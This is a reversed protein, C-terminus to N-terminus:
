AGWSREAQLVEPTIGTMTVSASGGSAGSPGQGGEFHLQGLLPTEGKWRDDWTAGHDHQSQIIALAHWAAAAMHSFQGEPDQDEGGQWALVHRYLASLHLSMPLGRRFNHPEYKSAGVGAVKGLELLADPGLWALQEPKSGKAGGTTSTIRVEAM